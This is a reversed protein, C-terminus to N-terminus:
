EVWELGRRLRCYLMQARTIGHLLTDLGSESDKRGETGRLFGVRVAQHLDAISADKKVSYSHAIHHIISKHMQDFDSKVGEPRMWNDPEYKTAGFDLVEVFHGFEPPISVRRDISKLLLKNDM